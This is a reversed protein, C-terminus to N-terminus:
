KQRACEDEVILEELRRIDKLDRASKMSRTLAINNEERARTIAEVAKILIAISEENTKAKPEFHACDYSLTVDDYKIIVNKRARAACGTFILALIIITLRM